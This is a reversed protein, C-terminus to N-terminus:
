SCADFNAQFDRNKKTNAFEKKIKKMDWSTIDRRQVYQLVFVKCLSECSPSMKQVDQPLIEDSDIGVEEKVKEFVAVSVCSFPCSILREVFVTNKLVLICSTSSVRHM